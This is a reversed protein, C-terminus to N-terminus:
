TRVTSVGAFIGEERALREDDRDRASRRNGLHRRRARADWHPPVIGTWGQMAFSGAAGGTIAASGAPELGVIRVDGNHGKLADSVGMLSGATGIGHVFAAVKGDTQEWIERGLM